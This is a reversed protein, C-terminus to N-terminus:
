FYIKIMANGLSVSDGNRLKMDTMKFGNMVIGNTSKRDKIGFYEGNFYLIAHHRSVTRDEIVIMNDEATGITVEPSKMMYEYSGTM